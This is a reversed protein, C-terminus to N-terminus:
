DDSYVDSLLIKSGCCNVPRGERLSIFWTPASFVFANIRIRRLSLFTASFELCRLLCIRGIQRPFSFRPGVMGSGSGIQQKRKRDEDVM